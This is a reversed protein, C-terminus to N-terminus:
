AQRAAYAPFVNQKEAHIQSFFTCLNGEAGNEKPVIRRYFSRKDSKRM